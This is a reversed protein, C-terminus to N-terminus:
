KKKKKKGKKKKGDKSIIRLPVRLMNDKPDVENQKFRRLNLDPRHGQLVEYFAPTVVPIHNIDIFQLHKFTKFISELGYESLNKCHTLEM